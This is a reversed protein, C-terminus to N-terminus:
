LPQRVLVLTICIELEIESLAPLVDAFYALRLLVERACDDSELM